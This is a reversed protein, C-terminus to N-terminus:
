EEDEKAVEDILQILKSKDRWPPRARVAKRRPRAGINIVNDPVKEADRYRRKDAKRSAKTKTQTTVRQKAKADATIALRREHAEVDATTVEDLLKKKKKWDRWYSVEVAHLGSLTESRPLLWCKELPKDVAPRIHLFSSDEQDVRAEVKWRGNNRARTQWGELQATECSYYLGQCEIGLKTVYAPAVDALQARITEEDHIELRHKHAQLHAKWYNIPTPKLDYELLLPCLALDDFQKRNHTLVDDALLSAVKELTLNAEFAPEPEGRKTPKGLTSGDLQNFLKKDLYGFRGEVISKMDARYPPTFQLTIFPALSEEPKTGIMEGRDCTITQPVHRCPYESEAIKLGYRAYQEAKPLFANILAQRASKWCAYDLSIHFGVIMRSARDTISYVTPRGIPQRANFRSVLHVNAITADIEFCGGPLLDNQAAFGELGRRNLAFDRPGSQKQIQDLANVLKKSWYFFQNPSPVAAPKQSLEAEEVENKYFEKITKERAETLSYPNEILYYKKLGKLIRERDQASVNQGQPMEMSVLRAKRPAGRKASGPERIEGPAGCRSYAPLLANKTQGFRWYLNLIRTAAVATLGVDSLFSAFADCRRSGAMVSLLFPREYFSEVVAYREDRKRKHKDIIQVDLMSMYAPNRFDALVASKSEIYFDLEALEIKEPRYLKQHSGLFFIIASSADNAIDLVRFLGKGYRLGM